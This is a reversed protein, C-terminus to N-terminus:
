SRRHQVPPRTPSKLFLGWRRPSESASPFCPLRHGGRRQCDTERSVEGSHLKLKHFTQPQNFPNVLSHLGSHESRDGLQKALLGTFCGVDGFVIILQEKYGGPELLVLPSNGKCDSICDYQSLSSSILTQMCPSFISNEDQLVHLETYSYSKVIFIYLGFQLFSFM